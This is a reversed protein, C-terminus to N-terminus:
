FFFFKTDGIQTFASTEDGRWVMPGGSDGQCADLKGKDYGACFMNETIEKSHYRTNRRCKRQPIVPVLVEQLLDSPSGGESLKGWGVVTTNHGNYSRDFTPLCVPRIHSSFDIPSNMKILAIDNNFTKKEFNDHIFTNAVTRYTQGPGRLNRDHDGLVLKLRSQNIGKLCHAATLVFLNTILSGGCYLKDVFQIGVTWPYQGPSTDVGNVIRGGRAPEGCVINDGGPHCIESSASCSPFVVINSINGEDEDDENYQKGVKDKLRRESYDEEFLQELQAGINSLINSFISKQDGSNGGTIGGVKKVMEMSKSSRDAAFVPALHQVGQLSFHIHLLLIFTTKM